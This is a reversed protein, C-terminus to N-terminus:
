LRFVVRSKIVWIVETGYVKLHNIFFHNGNGPFFYLRVDCMIYPLKSVSYTSIAGLKNGNARRNLWYIKPVILLKIKKYITRYFNLIQLNNKGNRLSFKSNPITRKSSFKILASVKIEKHFILPFSFGRKTSTKVGM